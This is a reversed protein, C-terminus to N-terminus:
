PHHRYQQQVLFQKATYWSSLVIMTLFSICYVLLTTTTLVANTFLENFYYYLQLSLIGFAFYMVVNVVSNFVLHCFRLLARRALIDDKSKSENQLRQDIIRYVQKFVLLLEYMAFALSLSFLLEWFVWSRPGTRFLITGYSGGVLGGGMALLNSYHVPDKKVHSPENAQSTSVLSMTTPGIELQAPVCNYICKDKWLLWM